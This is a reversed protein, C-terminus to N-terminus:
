PQGLLAQYTEDHIKKITGDLLMRKLHKGLHKALDKKHRNVYHYLFMTDLIGNLENLESFAHEKISLLGNMRPLVAVDIKGENLQTLVDKYEDFSSIKMGLTGEESFILGKIVGIHYPKLSHWGLLPFEINKTFVSGQVYNIPVPIELLNKHLRGLGSVRQLEGDLKGQDVKLLANEGREHEEFVIRYGARLYAEELVRKAALSENSGKICGVRIIEKVKLTELDQKGFMKSWKNMIAEYIKDSKMKNFVEQWQNVIADDTESNFALYMYEEQIVHVTEIEELQKSLQALHNGTPENVIWLDIEKDILKRLNERNDKISEINRFEKSILFQESFDDVYTGIKNVQRADALNEIQLQRDKRAMFVLKIPVLPGVWKFLKERMPTRTVSYLMTEPTAITYNYAESWEKFEFKKVHGMRKCLERVLDTSIGQVVGESDRFNYPPFDETIIKFNDKTFGIEIFLLLFFVFKMMNEKM